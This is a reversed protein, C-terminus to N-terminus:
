WHRSCNYKFTYPLRVGFKSTSKIQHLKNQQIWFKKRFAFMRLVKQSLPWGGWVRELRSLDRRWINLYCCCSFFRLYLKLITWTSFAVNVGRTKVVDPPIPGSHWRKLLRKASSIARLLFSDYASTIVKMLFFKSESKQFRSENSQPAVPTFGVM